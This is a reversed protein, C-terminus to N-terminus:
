FPCGVRMAVRVQALKKLGRPVSTAREQGSEMFAYGRLVGPSLAHIRLPRVVKGLKRKVAAFVLAAISLGPDEVGSIRAM